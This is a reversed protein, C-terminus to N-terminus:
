QVTLENSRIRSGLYWGAYLRVSKIARLMTPIDGPVNTSGMDFTIVDIHNSLHIVPTDIAVNGIVCNSSPCSQTLLIVNRYKLDEYDTDRMLIDLKLIYENEPRRLAARLNRAEYLDIQRECGDLLALAVLLIPFVSLRRM